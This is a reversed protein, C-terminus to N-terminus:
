AGQNVFLRAKPEHVKYKAKGTDYCYPTFGGRVYSALGCWQGGMMEDALRGILHEESDMPHEAGIEALRVATAQGRIYIFGGHHQFRRGVNRRWYSPPYALNQRLATQVAAGKAMRPWFDAPIDGEPLVDWDLWVAADQRKLVHLFAAIKLHSQALAWEKVRQDRLSYQPEPFEPRLPLDSALVPSLGVGRLFRHNEKGFAFDIRPEELPRSAAAEVDQLIKGVRPRSGPHAHTTANGWLGRIFCGGSM